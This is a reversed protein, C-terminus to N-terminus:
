RDPRRPRKASSRAPSRSGRVLSRRGSRSNVRPKRANPRGQSLTSLKEVVTVLSATLEPNKINAFARNLAFGEADTLDGFVSVAASASAADDIGAFFYDIPVGLVKSIDYLTSASVRNAGKEYKQIQQFSVGLADALREQAMGITMRRLRLRAGVHLDIPHGSRKGM